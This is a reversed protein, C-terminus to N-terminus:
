ESTISKISDISYNGSRSFYSVSHIDIWGYGDRDTDSAAICDNDPAKLYELCSQDWLNIIKWIDM